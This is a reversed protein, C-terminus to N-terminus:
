NKKAMHNVHHVSFPRRIQKFNRGVRQTQWYELLGRVGLADGFYEFIADMDAM